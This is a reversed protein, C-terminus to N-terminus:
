RLGAMPKLWPSFRCYALLVDDPNDLSEMAAKLYEVALERDASLEAIEREHHKWILAGAPVM